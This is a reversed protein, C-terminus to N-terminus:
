VDLRHTVRYTGVGGSESAGIIFREAVLTSPLPADAVRALAETLVDERLELFLTTHFKFDGDFVHPSVGYTDALIRDLDGHIRRLTDTEKMRIWVISGEREIGEVEIPFPKITRYYTLISDTVAPAIANDVSFSIKLSVHFPLTLASQEMGLSREAESVEATLHSLQDHVDIATWIYM